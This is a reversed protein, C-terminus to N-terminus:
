SSRKIEGWSTSSFRLDQSLKNNMDTFKVSLYDPQNSDIDIIFDFNRNDKMDQKNDVLILTIQQRHAIRRLDIILNENKDILGSELIMMGRSFELSMEEIQGSIDRLPIPYDPIIFLFKEFQKLEARLGALVKRRDESNVAKIWEEKGIVSALHETIDEWGSSPLGLILFTKMNQLFLAINAVFDSIIGPNDTKLLILSPIGPIILDLFKRKEEYLDLARELNFGASPILVTTKKQGPIGGDHFLEEMRRKIMLNSVFQYVLIIIFAVFIFGSSGSVSQSQSVSDGYLLFLNRFPDIFM